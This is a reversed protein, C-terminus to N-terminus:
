FRGNHIQSFIAIKGLTFNENSKFGVVYGATMEILIECSDSNALDYLFYQM